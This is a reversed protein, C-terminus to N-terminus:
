PRVTINAKATAPQEGEVFDQSTYFTFEDCAFNQRTLRLSNEIKLATSTSSIKIQTKNKVLSSNRPTPSTFIGDNKKKHNFGQFLCFDINQASV